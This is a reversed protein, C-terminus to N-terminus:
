FDVIYAQESAMNDILNFLVHYHTAGGTEEMAQFSAGNFIYSCNSYDLTTIELQMYDTIYYYGLEPWIVEIFNSSAIGGIEANERFVGSERAFKIRESEFIFSKDIQNSIFGFGYVGNVLILFLLIISSYLIIEKKM